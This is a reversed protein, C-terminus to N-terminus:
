AMAVRRLAKQARLGSLFIPVDVFIPQVGRRLLHWAAHFSNAVNKFRRRYVCQWICPVIARSRRKPTSVAPAALSPATLLDAKTRDSSLSSLMPKHAVTDHVPCRQPQPSTPQPLSEQQARVAWLGLHKSSPSARMHSQSRHTQTSAAKTAAAEKINLRQVYVSVPSATPAAPSQATLLDAKTCDASLSSLTPKHMPLQTMYRFANPSRALRSPRPHQSATHAHM